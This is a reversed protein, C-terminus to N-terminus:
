RWTVSALLGAGAPSMTFVLTLMALATVGVTGVLLWVERPPVWRVEHEARDAPRPAAQEMM